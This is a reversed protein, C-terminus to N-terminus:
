RSGDQKLSKKQKKRRRMVDKLLLKRAHASRTKVTGLAVGTILATEAVTNEEIWLHRATEQCDDPLRDVAEKLTRTDTKWDLEEDPRPPSPPPPERELAEQGRGARVRKRLDDIRVRKAITNLLCDVDKPVLPWPRYKISDIFRVFVTQTLDDAHDNNRAYRRFLQRVHTEYEEYLMALYDRDGKRLQGIAETDDYEGVGEPDEHEYKM